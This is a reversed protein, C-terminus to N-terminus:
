PEGGQKRCTALAKRAAKAVPHDASVWRETWRAIEELAEVLQAANPQQETPQPAAYVPVRDVRPSDAIEGLMPGMRKVHSLQDIRLYAVPEGQVAPAPQQETPQPAATFHLVQDGNEWDCNLEAIRREGYLRPMKGPHQCGWGSWAVPEGQVTEPPHWKPQAAQLAAEYIASAASYVYPKLDTEGPKITFGHALLISKITEKDM